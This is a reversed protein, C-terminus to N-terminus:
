AAYTTELYDIIEASEALEAGTNPDVLYPISIREARRLLERRNRTTPEPQISLLDRLVPPVWDSPTSRGASRLTYPLELECLLERVPRAFPSSEFSYLELARAPPRSSRAQSGAGFRILGAVGSGLEQLRPSRWYLPLERQGYTEFLYRVIDSSEYLRRGTNPDVLFPFQTKGGLEVVKPRFREGGKPCPFISADLDLETFAERVLRCYPCAEFEYLELLVEPQVESPSTAVGLGGRLLTAALSTALTMTHATDFATRIIMDAFM